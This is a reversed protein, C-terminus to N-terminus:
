KWLLGGILLLCCGATFAYKTITLAPALDTIDGAPGCGLWANDKRKGNAYHRAGGLRIGLLGAMTAEPWGANPSSHASSDRWAMALGRGAQGRGSLLGGLILLLATLRAPIFNLLDDFRAAACGFDSFRETHHGITSDATNTMKYAVLGPLGAVLFWFAPAIVGDSFNEALSEISARSVDALDLNGTERGVIMSVNHRAATIDGSLLAEQVANVHDFLSRTALFISAALIVLVDAWLLPLLEYAMNQGIVALGTFFILCFIFWLAGFSRRRIPSNDPKNLLGEGWLLLNAMWTVPHGIPRWLRNFEGLLVDTLLAFILLFTM